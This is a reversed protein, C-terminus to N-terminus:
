GHVLLHRGARATRGAGRLAFGGPAARSAALLDGGLVHAMTLLDFSEALGRRLGLREFIALAEHHYRLAEDIEERNAHWNGIRNLAQALAAPDDMARAVSLGRDLWGRARECDRWSWLLGLGLLASLATATDGQENARRLAAEFAESATYQEAAAHPAYVARARDGAERALVWAREWHGAEFAHYALIAPSADPDDALAAAVREHMRRRERALL